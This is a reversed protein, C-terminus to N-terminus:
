IFLLSTQLSFLKITKTLKQNVKIRKIEGTDELIKLARQVAKTSLGNSEALTRISAFTEGRGCSVGKFWGKRHNANLLLDLFVVKVSPEGYHQWETFSRYLKIFGNNQEEKAEITKGLRKSQKSYRVRASFNNLSYQISPM